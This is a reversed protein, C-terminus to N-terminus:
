NERRDQEAEEPRADSECITLARDPRRGWAQSGDGPIPREPAWAGVVPGGRVHVCRKGRAVVEVRAFASVELDLDSRTREHPGPRPGLDTELRELGAEQLELNWRALRGEVELPHGFPLAHLDVRRVTGERDITGAVVAGVDVIVARREDSTATTVRGHNRGAPLRAIDGVALLDHELAGVR